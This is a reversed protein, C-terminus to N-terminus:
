FEKNKIIRSSIGYSVLGFLAIILVGIFALAGAPINVIGTAFDLLRKIVAEDLHDIVSLILFFGVMALMSAIVRGNENGWKCIIPIVYIIVAYGGFLAVAEISLLQVLNPMAGQEVFYVMGGIASLAFSCILMFIISFIYKEKAYISRSVPLTFMYAMTKDNDFLSIAAYASFVTMYPISFTFGNTVTTVISVIAIIALFYRMSKLTKIDHIFLGKM